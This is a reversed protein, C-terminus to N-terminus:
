RIIIRIGHEREFIGLKSHMCIKLKRIDNVTYTHGKVQTRDTTLVGRISYSM